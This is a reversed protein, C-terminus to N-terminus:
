FIRRLYVTVGKLKIKESIMQLRTLHLGRSSLHM